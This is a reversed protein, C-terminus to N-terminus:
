RCPMRCRVSFAIPRKRAIPRRGEDEQHASARPELEAATACLARQPWFIQQGVKQRPVCNKHRKVAIRGTRGNLRLETGGAVRARPLFPLPPSHYHNVNCACDERKTSAEQLTVSNLSYLVFATAFDQDELPNDALALAAALNLCRALAHAVLGATVATCWVQGKPKSRSPVEVTEIMLTSQMATPTVRQWGDIVIDVYDLAGRLEHERIKQSSLLVM